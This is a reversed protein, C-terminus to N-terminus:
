REKTTEKSDKSDKMFERLEQSYIVGKEAVAKVKDYVGKGTKVVKGTKEKAKQLTEQINEPMRKPDKFYMYGGIALLLLILLLALKILKKFTVYVILLAVFVGVGVTFQHNTVYQILNDM